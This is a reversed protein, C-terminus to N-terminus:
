TTATAPRGSRPDDEFRERGGRSHRAAWKQVTSLDPGDDGLTAVMDAHINKHAFGMKQLCKNVGRHWIKDM